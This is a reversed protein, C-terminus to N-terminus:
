DNAAAHNRNKCCSRIDYLIRRGHVFKVSICNKARSSHASRTAPLADRRCASEDAEHHTAAAQSEPPVRTRNRCRFTSTEANCNVVSDLTVRHFLYNAFSCDMISCLRSVTCEIKYTRGLDASLWSSKASSAFVTSACMSLAPSRVPTMM